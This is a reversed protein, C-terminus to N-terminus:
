APLSREDRAWKRRLHTAAIRFAIAFRMLLYLSWLFFLCCGVGMILMAILWFNNQGSM